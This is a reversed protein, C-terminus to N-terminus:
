TVGGGVPGGTPATIVNQVQDEFCKGCKHNIRTIMQEPGVWGRFQSSQPLLPRAVRM